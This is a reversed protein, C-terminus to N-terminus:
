ELYLLFVFFYLVDLLITDKLKRGLKSLDKIFGNNHYVCNERYLRYKIIHAKDLENLVPNAYESVSATFIILEYYKSMKMLFEDVNPRKHVYITRNNTVTNFTLTIDSKNGTSIFTSHILTEDLDLLLTKRPFQMVKEPLYNMALKNKDDSTYLKAIHRSGQNYEYCKSILKSSSILRQSIENIIQDHGEKYEYDINNLSSFILDSIDELYFETYQTSKIQQKQKIQHYPSNPRHNKTANMKSNSSNKSLSIRIEIRSKARM